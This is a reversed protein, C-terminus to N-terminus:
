AAALAPDGPRRRRRLTGAALLSFLLGVPLPELFTMAVNYVPNRYNRAFEDLETKMKAMEAESKGKARAEELVREGYKTAYDPFVTYYVVEWTAVYCASAVATILLGTGLARGFGITGGLVNDRYARVGFFVLLFGAVMSAYGLVLSASMGIREHFPITVLMMASMIAGAILGFTWVTRKM